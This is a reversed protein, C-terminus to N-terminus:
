KFAGPIPPQPKQPKKDDICIQEEELVTLTIFMVRLSQSIVAQELPNDTAPLVGNCKQLVTEFAEEKDKAKVLIPIADEYQKRISDELDLDELTKAKEQYDVHSLVLYIVQIWSTRLQIEEEMLPRNASQHPCAAVKEMLDQPSIDLSYGSIVAAIFLKLVDVYGQSLQMVGNVFSVEVMEAVVEPTLAKEDETAATEESGAM